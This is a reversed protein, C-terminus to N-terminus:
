SQQKRKPQISRAQVSILEPTRVGFVDIRLPNAGVETPAPTVAKSAALAGLEPNSYGVKAPVVVSLGITIVTMAVAAIGIAARPNSTEYRNM